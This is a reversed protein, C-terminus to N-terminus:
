VATKPDVFKRDTRQRISLSVFFAVCLQRRKGMGVRNCRWEEVVGMHVLRVIVGFMQKEQQQGM